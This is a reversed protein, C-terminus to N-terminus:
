DRPQDPRVDPLVVPGQQLFEAPEDSPLGGERVPQKEPPVFRPALAEVAPEAVPVDEDRGAREVHEAVAAEDRQQSLATITYLADAHRLRHRGRVPRHAPREAPR